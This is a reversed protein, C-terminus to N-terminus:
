MIAALIDPIILVGIGRVHLSGSGASIVRLLLAWIGVCLIDLLMLCHLAEAAKKM